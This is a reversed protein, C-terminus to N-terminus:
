CFIFTLRVFYRPYAFILLIPHVAIERGKKRKREREKEHRTCGKRNRPATSFRWQLPTDLRLENLICIIANINARLAGNGHRVYSGAMLAFCAACTVALNNRCTHAFMCLFSFSLSALPVVSPNFRTFKLQVPRISAPHCNHLM